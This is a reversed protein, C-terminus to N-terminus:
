RLKIFSKYGRRMTREHDEPVLDAEDETLEEEKKRKSRGWRGKSRKRCHREIYIWIGIERQNKTYYILLIRVSKLWEGSTNHTSALPALM